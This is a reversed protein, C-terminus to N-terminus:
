DNAILNYFVLVRETLQKKHITAQLIIYLKHVVKDNNSLRYPNKVLM